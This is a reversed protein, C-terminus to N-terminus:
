SYTMANLATVARHPSDVHDLEFDSWMLEKRCYSYQVGDRVLIAQKKDIPQAM